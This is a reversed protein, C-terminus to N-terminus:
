EQALGGSIHGHASGRGAYYGSRTRAVAGMPPRVRVAVRRFAGGDARTEPVYGLDYQSTLERAIAGYVDPLQVATTPRFTRGGTDRALTQMDFLARERARRRQEEIAPLGPDTLAVVYIVAGVRRAMDAVDEASVHSANDLGDSLLVLVQRRVETTVRRERVLEKMAIYLGDYVATSGAAPLADIAAALDDHNITFQQPMAVSSSVALVAGRDEPRLSRILGTAAARVLPMDATMSSSADLVLAVDIPVAGASFFTLAQPVGNELVTFDTRELGTVYQGARDTVTVTLPVMDVGSRFVGRQAAAQLSATVTVIGIVVLRSPTRTIGQAM